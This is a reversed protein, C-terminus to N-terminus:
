NKRLRSSDRAERAPARGLGTTNRDEGLAAGFGTEDNDKKSAGAQRSGAASVGKSTDSEDDNKSTTGSEISNSTLETELASPASSSGSSQPGSGDTSHSPDPPSDQPGNRNSDDSGPTGGSSEATKQELARIRAEYESTEVVRQQSELMRGFAEGEQASIQGRAVARMVAPLVKVLDEATRIPPLRFRSNKPKCRPELRDLWFGLAQMNGKLGLVMCMRIADDGHKQFEEAFRTKKNRSGPPRGRGLQNGLVFPQGRMDPQKRSANWLWPQSPEGM